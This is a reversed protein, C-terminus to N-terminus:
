LGPLRGSLFDTLQSALKECSMRAATVNLLILPKTPFDCSLALIRAQQKLCGELDQVIKDIEQKLACAISASSAGIVFALMEGDNLRKAACQNSTDENFMKEVATATESIRHVLSREAIM